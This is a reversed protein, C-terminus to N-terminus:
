LVQTEKQDTHARSVNAMTLCHFQHTIVQFDRVVVRVLNVLFAMQAPMVLPEKQGQPALMIPMVAASDLKVFM